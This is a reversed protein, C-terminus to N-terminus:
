GSDAWQIWGADDAGFRLNVRQFDSPYYRARTVAPSHRLRTHDEILGAKRIPEVQRAEGYMMRSKRSAM